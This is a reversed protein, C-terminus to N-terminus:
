RLQCHPHRYILQSVIDHARGVQLHDNDLAVMFYHLQLKPRGTLCHLCHVANGEVHHVTLWSVDDGLHRHFGFDGDDDRAGSPEPKIYWRLCLKSYADPKCLLVGSLLSEQLDHHHILVQRGHVVREERNSVNDVVDVNMLSGHRRSSHNKVLPLVLNRTVVVVLSQKHIAASGNHGRTPRSLLEPRPDLGLVLLFIGLGQM